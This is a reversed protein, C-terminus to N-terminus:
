ADVLRRAFRLKLASYAALAVLLYVMFLLSNPFALADLALKTIVGFPSVWHFTLSAFFLNLLLLSYIFHAPGRRRYILSIISGCAVLFLALAAALIFIASKNLIEIGNVELLFMWLLSQLPAISAAVAMKGDLIRTLSLPSALLMQLTKKEMEETLLDIVLGGSILVPAIVLLPILIGYVFEYYSSVRRSPPLDLDFSLAGRFEPPLRQARLKRVSGEYREIPRKLAAAIVTAKIDTKPLYLDLKIPKEDMAKVQSLVLIGDVRGEYFAQVADDFRQTVHLRISQKEALYGILEHKEDATVVALDANPHYYGELAEPSLYSFIGVVLFAAFSAIFLQILFMLLLTKEKLISKFEKAAITKLSM